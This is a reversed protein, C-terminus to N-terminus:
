VMEFAIGKFDDPSIKFIEPKIQFWSQLADFPTRVKLEKSLSGHRRNFNYYILFKQLDQLMEQLNLYEQAKVTANKITGNVREVMGNTQPTYPATLRHDIADESHQSQTQACEQDFKHNGSVFGKGRAWKDTFELGNDTLVHTLYFPFYEKCRKLFDLANESSKNQYVKYYLLRTARDIAVFLYYKQKEFKPLYTVDIHLYGPEYEKFKKAKAKEEQPVTNINFAKLTRYVNSRNAHPINEIIADTLDDLDMWTLVRVARIIEKEMPSLAYHITNPRSSKDETFDRNKHKAITKTNVSYRSALEVNTGNSEQIISRVHQNTRANCHYNQSM